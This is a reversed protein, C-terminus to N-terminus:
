FFMQVMVAFMTVGAAVILAFAGIIFYISPKHKNNTM